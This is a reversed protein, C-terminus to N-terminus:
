DVIIISRPQKAFALPPRSIRVTLAQCGQTQTIRACVRFADSLSKYLRSESLGRPADQSATCAQSLARCEALDLQVTVKGQEFGVIKM